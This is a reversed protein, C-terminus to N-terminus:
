TRAPTRAAARAQRAIAAVWHDLTMREEITRHANSGLEAALEPCERLQVIAKRLAQVDGPPVYLGNVGHEVVDRQGTTQTVIVAKGMAMAELLTTVGAQFDNEYLPVVVFRAEAYLQRLEAYSYRRASVNPPLDRNQTENKHKSWPSAAALCVEVDLGRVAEIFTPYDRWELGASCIMDRAAAPTPRYFRHDAHFPILHVKGEPIGLQEVAYRRQTEAYVFVADMQKHLARFFPKKKKPSLHHGILVHGPRKRVGKFLTALPISVNEGNSFIVDYRRRRVYGLMALAADRGGKRAARVLPHREADLAAYDVLDAGLERQLAYYDMTPHNGAEVEAEIGTKAYSPVLMLVRPSGNPQPAAPEVRRARNRPAM